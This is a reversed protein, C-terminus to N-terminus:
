TNSEITLTLPVPRVLSNGVPSFRECRERLYAVQEPTAGPARLHITYAIGEYGSGGEGVGYFGATNFQGSVEIRVDEIVLGLLAAHMLVVDIDCAGLSALLAQMANLNGEGGIIMKRDGATIEASGGGISRATIEPKKNGVAPDAKLREQMERLQEVDIANIIM